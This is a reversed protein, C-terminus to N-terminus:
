GPPPSHSLVERSRSLVWAPAEGFEFRVGLLDVPFSNEVYNGFARQWDTDDAFPDSVNGIGEDGTFGLYLLVVPIGLSALKWTFALRNALQYHTDRSIEVQPDIQQWGACAEDIAEGIHEHNQRSNPSADSGLLKEATSLELVHAKAEVLVLGPRNDITCVVAIDWNPTNAGGKHILWWDELAPWAPHAPLWSPGFTELRGEDPSTHGRPMWHAENGNILHEVMDRVRDFIFDFRMESDSAGDLSLQVISDLLGCARLRKACAVERSVWYSSAVDESSVLLFISSEGLAAAIEEVFREGIPNAFFRGM